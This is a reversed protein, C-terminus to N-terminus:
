IRLDDCILTELTSERHFHSRLIYTCANQLNSDGMKQPKASTVKNEEHGEHAFVAPQTSTHQYARRIQHRMRSCLRTLADWPPERRPPAVGTSLIHGPRCAPFARHSQLARHPAPWDATQAEVLSSAPQEKAAQEGPELRPAAQPCSLLPPRQLTEPSIQRHQVYM